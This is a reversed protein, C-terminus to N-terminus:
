KLTDTNTIQQFLFHGTGRPVVFIRNAKLGSFFAAQLSKSYAISTKYLWYSPLVGLLSLYTFLEGKILDLVEDPNTNVINDIMDNDILCPLQRHLLGIAIPHADRVKGRHSVSSLDRGLQAIRM